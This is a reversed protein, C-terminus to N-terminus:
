VELSWKELVGRGLQVWVLRVLAGDTEAGLVEPVPGPVGLRGSTAWVGEGGGRGMLPGDRPRLRHAAVRLPLLNRTVPGPRAVPGTVHPSRWTVHLARRM